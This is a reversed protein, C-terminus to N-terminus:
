HTSFLFITSWGLQLYFQFSWLHFVSDISGCTSDPDEAAGLRGSITRNYLDFVLLCTAALTSLALSPAAVQFIPLGEKSGHVNLKTFWLSLKFHLANQLVPQGLQPTILWKTISLTQQKNNDFCLNL